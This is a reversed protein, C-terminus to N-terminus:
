KRWRESIARDYQAYATALAAEPSEFTQPKSEAQSSRQGPGQRWREGLTADYARYADALAQEARENGDSYLFGPRQGAPNGRGDHVITWGKSDMFRMEVVFAEGDRLIYADDVERMTGDRQRMKM